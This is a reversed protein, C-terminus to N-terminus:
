PLNAPLTREISLPKWDAAWQSPEPGMVLKLTAGKMIDAWTIVPVDLAKGGLTASQIYVNKDSNTEAEVTLRKGNALRMSMKRFLPSGIM